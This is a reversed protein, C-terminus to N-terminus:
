TYNTAVDCTLSWESADHTQLSSLLRSTRVMLLVISYVIRGIETNHRQTSELNQLPKEYGNQAANEVGANEADGYLSFCLCNM